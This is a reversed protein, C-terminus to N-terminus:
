DDSMWGYRKLSVFGGASFEVGEATLMERQIAAGVPDLIAIKAVGASRKGLVRHWPLGYDPVSARMAAGAVRARGPLGAIQAVEGYTAIRGRPIARVVDYITAYLGAIYGAESSATARRKWGMGVM